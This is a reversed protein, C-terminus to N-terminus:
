WNRTFDTQPLARISGHPPTMPFTRRCVADHMGSRRCGRLGRSRLRERRVRRAARAAAKDAPSAGAPVNHFLGFVRLVGLDEVRILHSPM